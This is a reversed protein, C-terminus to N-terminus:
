DEEKVAALELRAISLRSVHSRQVETGHEDIIHMVGELAEVLAAVRAKLAENEARLDDVECLICRDDPCQECICLGHKCGDM